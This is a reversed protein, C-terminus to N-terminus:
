LCIGGVRQGKMGSQTVSKALGLGGCFYLVKKKKKRFFCCAINGEKRVVGSGPDFGQSHPFCETISKVKDCDPALSLSDCFFSKEHAISRAQNTLFTVTNVGDGWKKQLIEVSM